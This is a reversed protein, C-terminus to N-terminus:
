SPPWATSTDSRCRSLSLAEVLNRVIELDKELAASSRIHLEIAVPQGESAPISSSWLGLYFPLLGCGKGHEAGMDNVMAKLVGVAEVLWKWLYCLQRTNWRRYATFPIPLSGQRTNGSVPSSHSTYVLRRISSVHLQPATVVFKRRCQNKDHQGTFAHVTADSLAGFHFAFM